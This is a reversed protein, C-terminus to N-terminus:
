KTFEIAGQPLLYLVIARGSSVTPSHSSGPPCVFWGGPHGDFKASADIPMILDIEGHPHTHHPGAIDEMLVVDVSFGNLEECPKFIRGFRIGSMERACLWGEAVGNECSKKLERYVSTNAGLNTNLWDQLGVDIVRQHIQNTVVAIQKKFLDQALTIETNIPTTSTMTKLM